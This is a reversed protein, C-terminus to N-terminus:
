EIVSRPTEGKRFGPASYEGKHEEYVEDAKKRMDAATFQAKLLIRESDPTEIRYEM